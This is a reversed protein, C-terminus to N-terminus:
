LWSIQCQYLNLCLVTEDYPDRINGKIAVTGVGDGIAKLSPFILLM